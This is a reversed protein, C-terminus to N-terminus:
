TDCGALPSWTSTPMTEISRIPDNVWVDGHRIRAILTDDISSDACSGPSGRHVARIPERM